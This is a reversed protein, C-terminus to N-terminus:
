LGKLIPAKKLALAELRNGKPTLWNNFRILINIPQWDKPIGIKLLGREISDKLSRVGNHKPALKNISEVAFCIISEVFGRTETDKPLDRVLTGFFKKDALKNKVVGPLLKNLWNPQPRRLGQPLGLLTTLMLAISIPKLFAQFIVYNLDQLSDKFMQDGQKPNGEKTVQYAEALKPMIQNAKMVPYVLLASLFLLHTLKRMQTNIAMMFVSLAAIGGGIVLGKLRNKKFEQLYRNNNKRGAGTLFYKQFGHRYFQFRTPAPTSQVYRTFNNFAKRNNALASQQEGANQVSGAQSFRNHAISQSIPQM